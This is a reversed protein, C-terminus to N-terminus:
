RSPTPVLAVTFGSPGAIGHAAAAIAPVESARVALVLYASTAEARTPVSFADGPAEFAAHVALVRASRSVVQGSGAAVDVVSGARLLRASPADLPVAVARDGTDLGALAAPGEVRATTLVEGSAVAATPARGLVQDISRVATQPLYAPPRRQTLLDQASLPVGAPVDRAAVVVTPWDVSADDTSRLGTWGVVAALAFLAVALVRRARSPRFGRVLSRGSSGGGPVRLTRSGVGQGSRGGGRVRGRVRAAHLATRTTM